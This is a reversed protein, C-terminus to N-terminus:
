ATEWEWPPSFRQNLYVNLSKFLLKLAANHLNDLSM